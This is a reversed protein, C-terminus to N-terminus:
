EDAEIEAINKLVIMRPRSNKWFCKIAYATKNSGASETIIWQREAFEKLVLSVSFGAKKLAEKYVEPVICCEGTPKYFGYQQSTSGNEKFYESNSAIWSVTFDMAKEAYDAEERSTSASEICAKIMETMEANAQKESLGWFWQSAYFDAVACVALYSLHSQILQPYFRELIGLMYRYDQELIKPEDKVMAIVRRIFEPGAFGHNESTLAHIEQACREKPVPAGYLELARTRVGSHSVDGALSEEGTTLVILNWNGRAQLGGSKAGRVKGQGCAVAYTLKDLYEQRDGALQREDVGVPLGSMFECIRELGVMTTNFSVMISEPHGWVSLAAKLAATKGGRSAGWVHIIFNRHGIMTLLPSAFSGALMLRAILNKRIHHDIGIKWAAFSGSECFGNALKVMAKKSDIDLVIGESVGPLFKDKGVWGLRSVSKVIPLIGMNAAEMDFLYRVLDKANESSVPLGADALGTIKTRQFVTSREAIITRWGDSRKFALEIKETGQDVDVLQRTLVVPVPCIKRENGASDFGFVGQESYRWSDPICPTFPQGAVMEAKVASVAKIDLQGVAKFASEWHMEFSDAKRIHLESPDKFGSLQVLYAKGSFGGGNLSACVKKVFTEGGHDPEKFIYVDLDNLAQVYASSFTDAGPAGLAPIGYHWLTHCDSEGEVLVIYDRKRFEHLRWLGYPLVKSGKSWSFRSRGHMSHRYRKAVERGNEDKYPIILRTKENQLGYEKLEEIPLKKAAAYEELTLGQRKRKKDNTIGAEDLLYAKAEDKSMGEHEQLFTWANGSASCAKCDYQGTNKNIYLSPSRDNHFPCLGILEQGKAKLGPIFKAYFREWDILKDLGIQM